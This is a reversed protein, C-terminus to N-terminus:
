LSTFRYIADVRKMHKEINTFLRTLVANETQVLQYYFMARGRPTYQPSARHFALDHSRLWYGQDIAM